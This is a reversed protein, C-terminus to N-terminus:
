RKFKKNKKTNFLIKNEQKNISINPIINNSSKELTQPSQNKKISNSQDIM